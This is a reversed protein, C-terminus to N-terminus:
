STALLQLDPIDDFDDSNLTWLTAAQVIACAAVGLDFERQRARSVGRYLTAALDAETPGFPFAATRPLLAEQVALEQPLRPGRLWEYLVLTSLALRDGREILGRLRPASRRPGTLADVLASTDLMIM